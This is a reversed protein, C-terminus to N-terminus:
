SIAQQTLEQVVFLFSFTLLATLQSAYGSYRFGIVVPIVMLIGLAIEVAPQSYNIGLSPGVFSTSSMALILLGLTFFFPRRAECIVVTPDREINKSIPLFETALYLLACHLFPVLVFGWISMNESNNFIHWFAWFYGLVMLILICCWTLPIFKRNFKHEALILDSFKRLLNAISLGLVIAVISTTYEFISMAYVRSRAALPDSM